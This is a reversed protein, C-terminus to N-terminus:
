IALCFPTFSGYIQDSRHNRLEPCSTQYFIELTVLEFYAGGKKDPKQLCSKFSIYYRTLNRGCGSVSANWSKVAILVM